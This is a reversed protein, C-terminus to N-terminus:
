FTVVAVHAAANGLRVPPQVFDIHGQVFIDGLPVVGDLVADGFACVCRIPFLEAAIQTALDALSTSQAGSRIRACSIIAKAGVSKLAAAMEQRRWLLPLPVAIMGARLVGLLAIVSEVTNPLQIAVLTDTQLGLRRLRAALASIARDTQAYTLRRPVGDTISERNPPDALAMMEPHRVGARRFLDDLTTREGGAERDTGGLIM